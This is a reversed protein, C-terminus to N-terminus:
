KENEYKQKQNSKQSKHTIQNTIGTCPYQQIIKYKTNTNNKM